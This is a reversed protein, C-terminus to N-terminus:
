GPEWVFVVAPGAFSSLAIEEGQITTQLDDAAAAETASGGRCSTATMLVASVVLLLRTM